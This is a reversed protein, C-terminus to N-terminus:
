GEVLRFQPAHFVRGTVGALAGPALECVMFCGPPPDFESTLGCPAADVFGFRPYYSPSGEVVVLRHGAARLQALGARALASGIGQRQHSPRVALPALALAALPGAPTAIRVPSFLIHGVVQGDEIAALSLVALGAARLADVLRAEPSAFRRPADRGFALAEVEFIGAIDEPLEARIHV